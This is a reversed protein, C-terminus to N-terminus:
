IILNHIYLCFHFMQIIIIFRSILWQSCIRKKHTYSYIEYKLVPDWLSKGYGNCFISM